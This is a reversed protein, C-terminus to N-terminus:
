KQLQQLQKLQDPTINYQQTQKQQISSLIQNTFNGLLPVFDITRLFTILLAVIITAGIVSGLGWFLGGLFNGLIIDRKRMHANATLHNHVPSNSEM